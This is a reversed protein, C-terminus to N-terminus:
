SQPVPSRGSAAPRMRRARGPVAEGPLPKRLFLATQPGNDSTFLLITNDRLALRELDAALRGMQKDLYAVM